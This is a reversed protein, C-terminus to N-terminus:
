IISFSRQVPSHDQERPQIAYWLRIQFSTYTTKLKELGSFTVWNLRHHRLDSWTVQNYETLVSHNATICWQSFLVQGWQERVQKSCQTSPLHCNEKHTVPQPKDAWKSWKLICVARTCQYGKLMGQQRALRGEDWGCVGIKPSLSSGAKHTYSLDGRM